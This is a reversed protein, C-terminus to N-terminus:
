YVPAVAPENKTLLRQLEQFPRQRPPRNQRQCQCKEWLKWILIYILPLIYQALESITGNLNLGLFEVMKTWVTVDKNETILAHVALANLDPHYTRILPTQEDVFMEEINKKHFDSKLSM